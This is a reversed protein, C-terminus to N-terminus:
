RGLPGIQSLSSTPLAAGEVVRQVEERRFPEVLLDYAGHQLVECWFGANAVRACVIVAADVHSHWLADILSSWDGDPLTVDTLVAQVPDSRPTVLM